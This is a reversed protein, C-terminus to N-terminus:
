QRSAKRRKRSERGSELKFRVPLSFRVRVPVDDVMAPQWRPMAKVVRLAEEGCGGGPNKLIEHSATSGDKEVVFSIVAAGQINSELALRPYRVSDALFRLMAAEGGPYQPMMEHPTFPMNQGNEGLLIGEILQGDRYTETRKPKGSKYFSRLMMKKGGAYTIVGKVLTTDSFYTHHEGTPTRKGDAAILFLGETMLQKKSTYSRVLSTDGGKKTIEDYYHYDSETAVVEGFRNYYIIKQAVLPNSCCLALLVVFNQLNRM